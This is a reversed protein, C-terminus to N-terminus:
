ASYLQILCKYRSLRFADTTDIKRKLAANKMDRLRQKQIKADLILLLPKEGSMDLQYGTLMFNLYRVRYCCSRLIDAFANSSGKNGFIVAFACQM